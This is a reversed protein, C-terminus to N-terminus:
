FDSADSQLFQQPMWVHNARDIAVPPPGVAPADLAAHYCWYTRPLRVTKESYVSEDIGPPDLYPDSLRYDMAELGTTSCYALYTVQVPAPKRAFALLRSGAMHMTLDILVDIQDNRIQQALQEDTLKSTDRWEDAYSRLRATFGDPTRVDAYCFVEFRSHDHLGLLPGLFIGVPHYKFDPSM